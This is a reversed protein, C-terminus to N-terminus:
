SSVGCAVRPTTASSSVANSDADTADAADDPAADVEADATADAAAGGPPNNKLARETSRFRKWSSVTLQM